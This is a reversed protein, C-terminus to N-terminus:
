EKDAEPKEEPEPWPEFQAILILKNERAIAQAELAQIQTQAEYASLLPVVTPDDDKEGRMIVVFIPGPM